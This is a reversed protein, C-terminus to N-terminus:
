NTTACKNQRNMHNKLTYSASFVIGCDACSYRKEHKSKVHVSLHAPHTFQKDCKSCQYKVGKHISEIHLKLNRNAAFTKECLNCKFKIEHVAKIHNRWNSQGNFEKGCQNCKYTHDSHIDRQHRRLGESYSFKKDCLNCEYNRSNRHFSEIHNNLNRIQFFQKDCENCNYEKTNPTDQKPHIAKIHVTLVAKTKFKKDCYVCGFNRVGEHVLEMHVKLNYKNALKKNCIFCTSTTSDAELKEEEKPKLYEKTTLSDSELKIEEREFYEGESNNNIPEEKPKLYENTILRDSELKIDEKEFYEGDSNTNIALESGIIQYQKCLDQIKKTNEITEVDGCYIFLLLCELEHYQVESLHIISNEQDDADDLIDRFFQSVAALIVKHSKIQSQDDLVLTIDAFNGTTSLDNLMQAFSETQSKWTITEM